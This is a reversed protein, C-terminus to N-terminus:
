RRPQKVKDIQLDEILSDFYDTPDKSSGLVASEPVSRRHLRLFDIAARLNEGAKVQEVLQKVVEIQLLNLQADLKQKYDDM